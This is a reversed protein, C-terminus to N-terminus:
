ELFYMSNTVNCNTVIVQFVMFIGYITGFLVKISWKGLHWEYKMDRITHIRYGCYSIIIVM